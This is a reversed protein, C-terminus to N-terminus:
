IEVELKEAVKKLWSIVEIHQPCIKECQGCEICDSAKGFGKSVMNRYYVTYLPEYHFQNQDNYLAFYNPIAINKPCGEVCYRCSTCPIAISKRILEAAKEIIRREEDDVPKMNKMFSLNDEMQGISSMGSLVFMVNDLSAAFRIAWSAPSADPEHERFLDEAREPISALAGGKVPEMVIVKRKHKCCVEYCKGSEIGENDWDMYNLQIQVFEMEPHESLIKDLLEAKDHYSFGIHEAKGEKKLRKVFDFGGLQETKEYVDEGLMHLLYFDFRDVGCREVQRKFFKEYDETRNVLFTPMKDALLFADRPYREVVAKRLAAESKGWHYPYATDFYSFGADIFADAMKNFQDQDINKIDDDIVPLRMLGFGLKKDPIKLISENNSMNDEQEKICKYIVRMVPAARYLLFWYGIEFKGIDNM